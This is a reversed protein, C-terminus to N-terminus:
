TEQEAFHAIRPALWTFRTGRSETRVAMSVARKSGVVVVLKKGRTIATYLLNRQLMMYHQTALTLVVAPYESGQSKHVSIAYAHTLEEVENREYASVRSDAWEILMGEGSGTIAAVVGIDGNFAEKDYNNRLQMIKDGPRFVRQKHRPLLRELVVFVVSIGALWYTYNM